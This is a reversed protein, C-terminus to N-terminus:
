SKRGRLDEKRKHKHNREEEREAPKSGFVRQKPFANWVMLDNPFGANIFGVSILNIVFNEQMCANKSTSCKSDQVRVLAQHPIPIYKNIFYFVLCVNSSRQM